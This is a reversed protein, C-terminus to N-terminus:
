KGSDRHNGVEAQVSMVYHDTRRAIREQRSDVGSSPRIYHFEINDYNNTSYEGLIDILDQYYEKCEKAASGDSDTLVWVSCEITDTERYHSVEADFAEFSADVPSWVYIRPSTANEREKQSVENQKRIEPVSNTWWGYTDAENLIDVVAQVIDTSPTLPRGDQFTAEFTLTFVTNNQVM